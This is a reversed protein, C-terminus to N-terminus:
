DPFEDVVEERDALRRTRETDLTGDARRLHRIIRIEEIREGASVLPERTHELHATFTLDQCWATLTPVAATALVATNVGPPLEGEDELAGGTASTTPIEEALPIVALPVSTEVFRAAMWVIQGEFCCGQIWSGDENRGLLEFQDGNNAQGLREFGTSPGARLNLNNARVTIQPALVLPAPAAAPASRLRPRLLMTRNLTGTPEEWARERYAWPIGLVAERLRAVQFHALAWLTLTFQCAGGIGTIDGLDILTDDVRARKLGITRGLGTTPGNLAEAAVSIFPLRRPSGPARAGWQTGERIEEPLEQALVALVHTITAQAIDDTEQAM